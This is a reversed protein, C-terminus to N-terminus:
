TLLKSNCHYGNPYISHPVVYGIMGYSMLEKFGAPINQIITDRLKEFYPRRNEPIEKLYAEISKAKSQM